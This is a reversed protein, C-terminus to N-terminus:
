NNNWLLGLLLSYANLGISLYKFRNFGINSVDFRLNRKKTHLELFYLIKVHYMKKYSMKTQNYISIIKIGFSKTYQIM